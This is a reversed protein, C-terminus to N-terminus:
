ARRVVHLEIRESNHFNECYLVRRGEKTHHLQKLLLLPHGPAVGLREALEPSAVVSAVKCLATSIRIGDRRLEDYLSWDGARKRLAGGTVGLVDEPVFEECHIVPRGNALRTRSVHVFRAEPELDFIEAVRADVVGTAVRCGASGPRYGHQRILDTTSTLKTLSAGLLGSTVGSVFTGIGRRRTVLGEVTLIRIADRVTARSVRLRAGLDPESPLQENPALGGTEIAQRLSDAVAQPLPEGHALQAVVSAVHGIDSM